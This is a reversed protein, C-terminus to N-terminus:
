CKLIDKNIKNNKTETGVTEYLLSTNTVASTQNMRSTAPKLADASYSRTCPWTLGHVSVAVVFFLICSDM